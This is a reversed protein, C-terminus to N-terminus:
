CMYQVPRFLSTFAVIFFILSSFQRLLAINLKAMEWLFFFLCIWPLFQANVENSWICYAAFDFM